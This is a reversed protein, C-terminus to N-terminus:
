TQKERAKLARRMAEVEADVLISYDRPGDYRRATEVAIRNYTRDWFVTLFEELAEVRATKRADAEAREIDKEQEADAWRM